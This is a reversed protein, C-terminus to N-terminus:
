AALHNKDPLTGAERHLRIDNDGKWYYRQRTFPMTITARLHNDQPAHYAPVGITIASQPINLHLTRWLPDWWRFVVSYNSNTEDQYNSHHIGHMRPTVIFVNLFRELGIPLRFNSHHFMTSMNFILEYLVFDLASIGILGIQIIRFGSSLAIEGAHFRFSTTIDLDPDIHHVNHFRWLFPIRHNARHWWYFTADMLLFAVITQMGFPLKVYQLIGFEEKAAKTMMWESVPTVLLASTTLTLGVLVANVALRHRFPRTKPRLPIKEQLAFFGIASIGLITFTITSLSSFIDNM